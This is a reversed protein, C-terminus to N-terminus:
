VVPLVTAEDEVDADVAVDEDLHDVVVVKAELVVRVEVTLLRVRRPMRSPSVHLSFLSRAISSRRAQFNLLPVNLM